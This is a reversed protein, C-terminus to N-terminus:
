LIIQLNYQGTLPFEKSIRMNPHYKNLLNIGSQDEGQHPNWLIFGASVKSVVKEIYNNKTSDDFEGLAYFSICYNYIGTFNDLNSSDLFDVNNVGISNLYHKQFERVNPLDYISYKSINIGRSKALCFIMSCLGGYGGGIEVIKIDGRSIHGLIENAYYVYRLTIPSIKYGNILEFIEPSGINDIREIEDWPIHLDKTITFFTGDAELIGIMRKVWTLRRFTSFKESDEICGLLESGWQSYENNVWDIYDQNM